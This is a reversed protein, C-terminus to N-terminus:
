TRHRGIFAARDGTAAVPTESAALFAVRDAFSEAYPNRATVAGLEALYDTVVHRSQGEAPPGLWWEVYAFVSLTLPEDGTNTLRLQSFKIPDVPDVFVALDHHVPDMHQEFRTVGRGHRIVFAHDGAPRPVPGPTPAWFRGTHEDRVFIAEATP